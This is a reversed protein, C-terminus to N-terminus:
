VKARARARGSQLVHAQLTVGRGAVFHRGARPTTACAGWRGCSPYCCRRCFCSPWRRPPNQHGAQRTVAPSGHLWHHTPASSRQQPRAQPRCAPTTAHVLGHARRGSGQARADVGRAVTNELCPHRQKPSSTGAGGRGKVAGGKRGWGKGLGAGSGPERAQTPTRGGERTKRTTRRGAGTTLRTLRTM